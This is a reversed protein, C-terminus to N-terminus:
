AYARGCQCRRSDSGHQSPRMRVSILTLFLKLVLREMFTSHFMDYTGEAFVSSRGYLSQIDLTSDTFKTIDYDNERYSTDLVLPQNESNAEVLVDIVAQSMEYGILSARM